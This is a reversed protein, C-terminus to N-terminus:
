HKNAPNNPLETITTTTDCVNAIGNGNPEQQDPNYANPCKDIYDPIDDQDQDSDGAVWIPVGSVIGTDITRLGPKVPKPDFHMYAAYRGNLVGQGCTEIDNGTPLKVDHGLFYATAIQSSMMGACIENNSDAQLDTMSQFPSDKKVQLYQGSAIITCTYRALYRRLQKKTQYPWGKAAGGLACNLDTIDFVGENLQKFLLNGSPPNVIVPIRTIPGPLDYAKALENFIADYLANNLPLFYNASGELTTSYMGVKIKRNDLITKLLGVPKQPFSAYHPTPYCDALNVVMPDYPKTIENLKGSSLVRIFAANLAQLLQNKGTASTANEAGLATESFTLAVLSILGLSCIVIHKIIVRQKMIDTFIVWHIAIKHAM